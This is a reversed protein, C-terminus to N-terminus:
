LGDSVRVAEIRLTRWYNAAQLCARRGSLPWRGFIRNDIAGQGVEPISEWGEVKLNRLQNRKVASGVFTWAQPM